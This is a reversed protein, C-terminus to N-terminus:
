KRKRQENMLLLLKAARNHFISLWKVKNEDKKLNASQCHKLLALYKRALIGHTKISLQLYSRHKWGKKLFIKIKRKAESQHNKVERESWDCSQGMLRTILNRGKAASPSLWLPVEIQPLREPSEDNEQEKIPKAAAPSAQARLFSTM